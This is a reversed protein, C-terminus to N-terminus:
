FYTKSRFTIVKQTAALNNNIILSSHVSDLRGLLKNSVFLVILLNTQQDHSRILTLGKCLTFLVPFVRSQSFVFQLEQRMQKGVEM